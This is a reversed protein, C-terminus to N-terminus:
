MGLVNSVTDIITKIADPNYMFIGILGGIILTIVASAINKKIFEKLLIFVFVVLYIPLIYNNILNNKITNGNIEAFAPTVQALCLAMTLLMVEIKKIKNRTFNMIKKM